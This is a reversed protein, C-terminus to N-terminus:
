RGRATLRSREAASLILEALRSDGDCFGFDSAGGFHQGWAPLWRGWRDRVGYFPRKGHLGPILVTPSDATVGAPLERLTVGHSGAVDALPRAESLGAECITALRGLVAQRFRVLPPADSPPAGVLGPVGVIRGQGDRECAPHGTAPSYLDTRGPAANAVLASVIFATGPEPSPLGEVPGFIARYIPLGDLAGVEEHSVSVRAVQGSPPIERGAATIPHPTLNVINM